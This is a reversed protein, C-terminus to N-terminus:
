LNLSGDFPEEFFAMAPFPDLLRRGLRWVRVAVGPPLLHDGAQLGTFVAPLTVQPIKIPRAEAELGREWVRPLGEAGRHGHGGGTMTPTQMNSPKQCPVIGQMGRHDFAADIRRHNDGAKILQTRLHGFATIDEEIM